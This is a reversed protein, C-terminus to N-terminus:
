HTSVFAIKEDNGEGRDDFLIFDTLNKEPIPLPKKWSKLISM